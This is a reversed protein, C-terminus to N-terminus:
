IIIFMLFQRRDSRRRARSSKGTCMKWQNQESQHQWNTIFCPFFPENKFFTFKECSMSALRKVFSKREPAEPLPFIDPPSNHFLPASPQLLLLHRYTHLYKLQSIKIWYDEPFLLVLRFYGGPSETIRGSPIGADIM